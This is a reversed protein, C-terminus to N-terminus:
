LRSGATCADSISFSVQCNDETCSGCAWSSISVAHLIRGPGHSQVRASRRRVKDLARKSALSARGALGSHVMNVKLYCVKGNHLDSKGHARGCWVHRLCPLRVGASSLSGSGRCDSCSAVAQVPGNALWGVGASLTCGVVVLRLCHCSLVRGPGTVKLIQLQLPLCSLRVCLHFSSAEPTVWTWGHHLRRRQLM